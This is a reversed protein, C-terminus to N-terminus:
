LLCPGSHWRVLVSDVFQAPSKEPSSIGRLSHATAGKIRHVMQYPAITPLISTFLHVHDPRIVLEIVQDKLEETIQYILEVLHNGVQGGLVSWRYKPCFVFYYNIHYAVHRTKHITM